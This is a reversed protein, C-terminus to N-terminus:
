DIWIWTMIQSFLVNYSTWQKGTVQHLFWYHSLCVKIDYPSNASNPLFKACRGVLSDSGNQSEIFRSGAGHFQTNISDSQDKVSQFLEKVNDKALKSDGVPRGALVDDDHQEKGRASGNDSYPKREPYSTAFYGQKQSIKEVMIEPFYAQGELIQMASKMCNAFDFWEGFDAPDIAGNAVNPKHRGVLGDARWKENGVFGEALPGNHDAVKCGLTFETMPQLTTPDVTTRTNPPPTTSAATPSTTSSAVTSSATTSATTSAATPAKTGETTSQTTKITTSPSTTAVDTGKGEWCLRDAITMMRWENIEEDFIQHDQNAKNLFGTKTNRCAYGPTWEGEKPWKFYKEATWGNDRGYYFPKSLFRSEM